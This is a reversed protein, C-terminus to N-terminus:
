ESSLKKIHNAVEPNSYDAGGVHHFSMRGNKDLIVTAPLSGSFYAAPIGSSSTYVPLNYGGKTMFASSNAYNNDLDVMLFLVNKDDKFQNYLKNISPMEAICPPCWTAWFNIFVVKGKQESLVITKGEGDKFAAEEIPPLNQPNESGKPIEPQFLGIKMLNQMTWGKFAPSFTLTVLLLIIIATLINSLTFWKKKM